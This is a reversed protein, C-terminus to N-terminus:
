IDGKENKILEYIKILEKLNIGMNHTIKAHKKANESFKVALEDDSFINCVYYALMYPADYQYVFGEENHTMMNKVGGVDSSVCPVGLLMAEGLSNPSNEISSPSVFTHAKLFRDCMAKEDLYGTFTIHKELNYKKILKKIYTSYYSIKIKSMFTDSKTIDNGAVYLHTDPFKKIIEPLAELVFHLGKIPYNAQSLFISHRECKNIDWNHNYFESRLTENCFHYKAFPNVQSTCAKDWDTRGIFHQVKQMAVIEYKGKKIFLNRQQRINNQKIFDRFTFKNIVSNSLGAYYHKSYISVLGQINIVAKKAIGLKECANVAALTHPYETGFIHVVDPQAKSVISKINNETETSYSNSDRKKVPFGFFQLNDTKGSIISEKNLMPFAVTLKIEPIQLLGDSMGVLWGGYNCIEDSLHASIKPLM